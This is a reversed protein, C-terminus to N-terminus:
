GRGGEGTENRLKERWEPIPPTGPQSSLEIPLTPAIETRQMWGELGAATRVRWWDDKLELVTVKEGRSIRGLTHGIFEPKERIPVTLKQGNRWIGSKQAEKLDGITLEIQHIANDCADVRPQLDRLREAVEPKLGGPGAARPADSVLPNTTRRHVFPSREAVLGRTAKLTRHEQQIPTCKKKWRELAEQWRRLQRGFM